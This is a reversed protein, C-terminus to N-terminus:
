PAFIRSFLGGRAPTEVGYLLADVRGTVRLEGGELSLSDIHLDEGRIELGGAATTLLIAEENFRAVEEVGSISLRNREELVLRHNKGGTNEEM